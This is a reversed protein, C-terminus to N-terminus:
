RMLYMKGFGKVFYQDANTEHKEISSGNLQTMVRYLYIGNGLPDGYDDKGDWAYETINRGIHIPGIEEPGINRVVKGTVTMIQIRFQQPIESGTLTFVFRTSSSFPNPYNLVETITSKNIVEFEIRYDISGSQNDSKDKAQVILEYIGDQPFAPTYSLKCSNNPLVAPTFMLETGWQVQQAVIDDPAKIFVKFDSSDNLALFRNEDKLQVLISPKASVIDRNLIHVGDFTVDLLPNINDGSAIFDVKAINNLHYQERQGKIHNLPNVEMWLSNRGRYGETSVVLTDIIVEGPNFPKKKMRYPLPHIVKDNDEIWYTFVLSDTFAFESINQVALSFQLSEGEQITDNYFNYGLEPEIAAEPAPDYLVMWQDIHPPTRTTDDEEYAILKIFPYLTSDVYSGLNLVHMSPPIFTALTDVNGNSRIGLVKIKISDDSNPEYSHYNWHLEGWRVAPGIIESEVYGTNWHTSFTDNLYIVSNRNAGIVETATGPMSGKVGWVIFPVTDPINRIGSSGISDFAQALSNIYNPAHHFYQSYVLVPLGDPITDLFRAITEQQASDTDYFDFSRFVQASWCIENYYPATPGTATDNKTEWPRGSITDFVAISLGPLACTWTHQVSNNIEYHDDPWQVGPAGYIFDEVKLNKVDNVFEFKRQAKNYNVFQYNDHKFQFFHSQSWGRKGTIFRFSSEKWHYGTTDISDPSVRWFFVLSDVLNLAPTWEVVGGPSSVIASQLQPSNFNDTTDVQFIYNRAAAFPNGTSAKLKVPGSPVVAYQYPYVPTIDDGPILFQIAQTSNNGENLEAVTGYADVRVVMTNLGPGKSFDVPFKVSYTNAYYPAAVMVQEISTTGDPFTRKFEIVISDNIAKGINKVQAFVTFSDPRSTLDFSVDPNTIVYDPLKHSNIVIAPDGHLTMEMCTMDINEDMGQNANLSTRIAEQMCVGVSRGYYTKSVNTFFTKSYQHLAYPIGLSVSALYGIVGKNAILVFQESSSLNESHIDGAYCSNAVLFPYKGYNNYNEPEDISQDFGTGSAHGFFTMISVGNEIMDRLTDSQNIQIPASTTKKFTTVHGGFYPSELTDGYVKLYNQFSVQENLTTGGAFHLINKQWEAPPASEYQVVKDLYLNVDSGTVASLRGTPIAPQLAPNGNLGATFLEDSGPFGYTPVLILGLGYAYGKYSSPPLSKGVLFLNKPATPFTDLLFECFKRIALPNKNVGHAFQDYLDQVEAIVVHHNGGALSSRYTKYLMAENMLSKHTVIIFASDGTMQTYDVFYGTGNVPTLQTIRVAATDSSVFCVKDAGNSSNPVLVNFNTGGSFGTIRRHDTLDYVFPQTNYSVFNTLDLRSKSQSTNDPLIFRYGTSMELNMTHPYKAYIYSLATGNGAPLFGPDAISIHHFETLSAGLLSPSLSYNFKKLDYGHFTVDTLLTWGASGKYEIKSHHDPNLINISSNESEGALVIEVSANPAGAGTYTNTTPVSYSPSTQGCELRPYEFWGEAKTYLPSNGGVPNTQGSYYDRPFLAFAEKLFYNSATYSSYNLTDSLATVRNNALASNWTLFYAATDTFISLYPNPAFPTGTYVATDLYGDNPKGYFEIYDGNNFVGDGEGKVYIYQEQGRAFLQFGRPDITSLPLGLAALTTSDIRYIGESIINIRYYKQGHNIWENGYPQANASAAFLFLFSIYLLKKM